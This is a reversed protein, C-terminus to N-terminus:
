AVGVDRKFRESVHFENCICSREHLHFGLNSVVAPFIDELVAAALTAALEAQSRNVMDARHLVDNRRKINEQVELWLTKSSGSRRYSDPDVGGYQRLMEFLLKSFRDMCQHAMVLDTVLGALPESHILGYVIPKLLVIKLGVEVASSAIVFAGRPSSDLLARAEALASVAPEAISPNRLYFSQLRESRFEDLAQKSHEEYLEEMWAEYRAEDQTMSM